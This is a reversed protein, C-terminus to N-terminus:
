ALDFSLRGRRRDARSRNSRWFLLVLGAVYLALTTVFYGHVVTSPLQEFLLGIDNRGGVSGWYNYLSNILPSLAGVIVLNLWIARNVFKARMCVLFFLGFTLLDVLYPAALVLWDTRGEWLVYGWYFETGRITPWFVFEIIRAGELWAVLAHSAEHRFTGIVQYVPYAFLWYFDTKKM